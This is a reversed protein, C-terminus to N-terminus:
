RNAGEERTAMTPPSMAVVGSWQSVASTFRSLYGWAHSSRGNDRSAPRLAEAPQVLAVEDDAASTDNIPLQGDKSMHGLMDQDDRVVM